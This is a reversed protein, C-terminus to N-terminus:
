VISKKTTAPPPPPPPESIDLPKPPPPPAPPPPPYKALEIDTFQPDVYGITTPVPPTPPADQKAVFPLPKGPQGPVNLEANPNM